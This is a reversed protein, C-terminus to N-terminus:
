NKIQIPNGMYFDLITLTFIFEYKAQLLDSEAKVLNNKATNYDLSNVLGL